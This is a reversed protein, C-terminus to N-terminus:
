KSFLKQLENLRAVLQKSKEIIGNQTVDDKADEKLLKKMKVSLLITRILAIVFLLMIAAASLITVQNNLPIFTVIIFSIIFPSACGIRITNKRSKKRKEYLLSREERRKNIENCEM